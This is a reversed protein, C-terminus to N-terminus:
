LGSAWVVGVYTARGFHSIGLFGIGPAYEASALAGSYEVHVKFAINAVFVFGLILAGDLAM